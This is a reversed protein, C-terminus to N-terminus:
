CLRQLPVWRIFLRTLSTSEAIAAAAAATLDTHYNDLLLERLAKLQPWAAATEFSTHLGLHRLKSLSSLHLLADEATSDYPTVLDLHLLNPPLCTDVVSWGLVGKCSLRTLRTLCLLVSADAGAISDYALVELSTLAALAPIQVSVCSLRLQRLNCCRLLAASVPLDVASTWFKMRINLSTLAQPELCQLINRPEIYKKLTNCLTLSHLAVPPRVALAVLSELLKEVGACFSCVVSM